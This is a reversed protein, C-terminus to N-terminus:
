GLEKHAAEKNNPDNASAFAGLMKTFTKFTEYDPFKMLEDGNRFVIVVGSKSLWIQISHSKMFALNKQAQWKTEGSYDNYTERKKDREERLRKKELRIRKNEKRQWTMQALMTQRKRELKAMKRREKRNMPRDQEPM